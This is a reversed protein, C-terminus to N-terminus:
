AQPEKIERFAAMKADTQKVEYLKVIGNGCIPRFDCRKCHDGAFQAFVGDRIMGAATELLDTLEARNESLAARSFSAQRYGGRLTFYLYSATEVTIGPHLQEAALLYLPLQLAEGTAFSDDKLGEPFKGTKYDLVRARQGDAHLDIRDIKGRLRVPPAVAIGNFEEECKFPRWDAGLRQRERAVFAVLEHRLIEKKIEWVTPFGTVGQQEFRRLHTEIVAALDGGDRYFEELIKHYIDGLDAPDITLATEPEEWEELRLVHKQFYYFPCRFFDQLSTASIVLKELGFRDRLLALPAAAEILGDHATLARTRWHHQEAAVGARLLPSIAALYPDPEAMDRLAALDLEREDLTNAGGTFVGLPVRRFNPLKELARFDPAHTADLLLFSPVRPRATGPDLRPYSLVLQERAMGTALAFLLHEEQQGRQKLPLDPSIGAREDDLLIPDERVLRPFSKEVLGLVIVLPFSLGRAGM